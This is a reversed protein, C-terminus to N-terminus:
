VMWPYGIALFLTNAGTEEIANRAARYIRKLTHFTDDEDKYTHLIHHDIDNLVLDRLLPNRKSRMINEDEDFEFEVNPKPLICYEKGDQLYDEIRNIDFSIFQLARRRLNINLLTNRLSFDLLKREWIDFKTLLTNSYNSQSPSVDESQM